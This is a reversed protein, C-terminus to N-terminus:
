ESGFRTKIVRAVESGWQQYVIASPHFGDKAILNSDNPANLNLHEVDSLSSLTRNLDNDFQKGIRGLYWRLPNPLAPFQGIPPVASVIIFKAELERQCHLRIERQQNRWHKLSIGSTVDNVGLSIIVIDYQENKLSNLSRLTSQTTAGTRAFVKWKVKFSNTLHLLIQGVLANRQDDVGVGAGASDGLVLISLPNGKGSVGVRQGSPEALILINKRVWWGQILLIPALIITLFLRELAAFYDVSKGKQKRVAM